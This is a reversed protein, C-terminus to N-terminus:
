SLQRCVPRRRRGSRRVTGQQASELQATLENARSQWMAETEALAEAREAAAEEWASAAAGMSSSEGVLAKLEAQNEGLAHSLERIQMAQEAIARKADGARAM